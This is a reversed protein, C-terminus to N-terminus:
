YWAVIWVGPKNLIWVHGDMLPVGKDVLRGGTDETRIVSVHGHNDKTMIKGYISWTDSILGSNKYSRGERALGARFKTLDENIYIKKGVDKDQNVDKLAKRALFVRERVNRTAFKVIIQRDKGQVKRGVRHSVAIDKPDLPPDLEM